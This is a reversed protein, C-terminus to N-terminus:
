SKELLSNCKVELRIGYNESSGDECKKEPNTYEVVVGVTKNNEIFKTM